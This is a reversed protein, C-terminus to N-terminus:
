MVNLKIVTDLCDWKDTLNLVLEMHDEEQTLSVVCGTKLLSAASFRKGDAPPPLVLSNGIPAKLVHLYVASGDPSQTAVGWVLDKFATGTHTIYSTSPITNKISPAIANIHRGLESMVEAVGTEWGGGAYPGSAWQM